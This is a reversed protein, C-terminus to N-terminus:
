LIKGHFDMWWEWNVTEYTMTNWFNM